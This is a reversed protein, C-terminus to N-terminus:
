GTGDLAGPPLRVRGECRGLVDSLTGIQEFVYQTDSLRLRFAVYAALVAWLRLYKRLRGASRLAARASADVAARRAAELAARPRGFQSSLGDSVSVPCPEHSPYAQWPISATPEPFGRLWDYYMYHRLCYDLPLQAAVTLVEPDYLPEIFEFPQRDIDEFLGSLHRRQDNELLFVYLARAPDLCRLRAMEETVSKLPLAAAYADLGPRFARRAVAIQNYRLFEAVGAEIGQERLLRVAPPSLYVHGIGVSGGDGGWLRRSVPGGGVLDGHRVLAEYLLTAVAAGLQDDPLTTAHHHTGIAAAFQRGYVEDQSDRWSVNLTHVELAQARLETVVCRSDLGGSLTAFVARRKGARLRVAETFEAHLRAVGAASDEEIRDCADLDWRWYERLESAGNRVTLLNGARLSRVDAYRTRDALPIGFAAEELTGRLDATLKLDPLSEILRLAGAFVLLGDIELVYLPRVGLRDTALILECTAPRFVVLNFNGRAARLAPSLEDRGLAAFRAVDADREAGSSRGALLSDGCLAVCAEGSADWGGADFAGLDLKALYAGDAAYETTAGHDNRSLNRRLSDRWAAPVGRDARLSLIGCSLSM